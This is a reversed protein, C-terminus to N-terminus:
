RIRKNPLFSFVCTKLLWFLNGTVSGAADRYLIVSKLRQTQQVHVDVDQLIENILRCPTPRDALLHDHM